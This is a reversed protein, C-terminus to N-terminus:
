YIGYLLKRNKIFSSYKFLNMESISNMVNVSILPLDIGSINKKQQDCQNYINKM